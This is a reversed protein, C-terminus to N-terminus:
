MPPSRFARNKVACFITLATSNRRSRYALKCIFILTKSYNTTFRQLLSQKAFGCYGLIIDNPMGRTDGGFMSDGRNQGETEGRLSILEDAHPQDTDTPKSYQPPPRRQLSGWSDDSTSDIRFRCRGERRRSHVTSGPPLTSLPHRPRGRAAM